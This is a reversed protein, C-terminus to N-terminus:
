FEKDLVVIRFRVFDTVPRARAVVAVM